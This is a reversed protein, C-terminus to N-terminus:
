VYNFEKTIKELKYFEDDSENKMTLTESSAIDDVIANMKIMVKATEKNIKVGSDALKTIIFKYDDLAKHSNIHVIKLNINKNDLLINYIRRYLTQNKVKEGDTKIWNFWDSTNWRNPIYDRLIQVNLKSDTVLVVSVDKGKIVKVLKAIAKYIAWAEAFVISDTALRGGFKVYKQTKVNLIVFGYASYRKNKGKNDTRLSGDTFLIYDPHLSKM